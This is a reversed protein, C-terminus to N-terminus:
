QTEKNKINELYRVFLQGILDHNFGMSLSSLKSVHFFENRVGEFCQIQTNKDKYFSTFVTEVHFPSNLTMFYQFTINRLGTEEFCERQITQLPTENKEACGGIFGWTNPYLIGPNNDRLLLLVEDFQNFIIVSSAKPKM